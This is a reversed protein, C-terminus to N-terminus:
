PNKIMPLYETIVSNAESSIFLTPKFLSSIDSVTKSLFAVAYIIGIYADRYIRHNGTVRLDSQHIAFSFTHVHQSLMQNAHRYHDDNIDSIKNREQQTLHFPPSNKLLYNQTKPDLSLFFSSTKLESVARSQWRIIEDTPAGDRHLLRYMQIRRDADNVRWLCIRFTREDNSVPHLAIYALSDYAEMICRSLAAFSSIDWYEGPEQRANPLLKRLSLGHGLQKMFISLCYQLWLENEKPPPIEGWLKIGENIIIILDERTKFFMTEHLAQETDGSTNLM